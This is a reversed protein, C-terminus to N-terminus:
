GRRSGMSLCERDHTPLSPDTDCRCCEVYKGNGALSYQGVWVCIHGCRRVQVWLKEKAM